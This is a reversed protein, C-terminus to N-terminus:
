DDLGVLVFIGLLGVLNVLVMFIDNFYMELLDSVKEGILFVVFLIILM